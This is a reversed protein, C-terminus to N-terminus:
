SSPNGNASIGFFSKADPRKAAEMRATVSTATEHLLADVAKFCKEHRLDLVFAALDKLTNNLSEDDLTETLTKIAEHIDAIALGAVVRSDEARELLKM